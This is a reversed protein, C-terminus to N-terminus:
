QWIIGYPMVSQTLVPEILPKNGSQELFLASINETLGMFCM